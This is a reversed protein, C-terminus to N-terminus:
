KLNFWITGDDTSAKVSWTSVDFLEESVEFVDAGNVTIGPNLDSVIKEDLEVETAYTSSADLDAEYVVDDNSVLEISPQSFMGLPKKSINKISYHIIVYVGGDSVTKDFVEGDGINKATKVSTVKMEVSGASGATNLDLRQSADPSVVEEETSAIAFFMFAFIVPLAFWRQKSTIKKM